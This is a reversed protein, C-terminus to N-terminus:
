SSGSPRARRASAACPRRQGRTFAGVVFSTSSRSRCARMSRPSRLSACRRLLKKRVHVRIRGVLLAGRQHCDAGLSGRCARPARASRPSASAGRAALRDGARARPAAPAVRTALARWGPVRCTSLLCGLHCSRWRRTGAVVPGTPRTVSVPLTLRSTSRWLSSWARLLVALSRARTRSRRRSRLSAPCPRNGFGPMTVAGLVVLAAIAAAANRMHPLAFAFTSEFMRM